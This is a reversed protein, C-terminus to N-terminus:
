PHLLGVRPAPPEADRGLELLPEWPEGRQVAVGVLVTVLRQSLERSRSDPGLQRLNPFVDPPQVAMVRRYEEDIPTGRRAAERSRIEGLAAGLAMDAVSEYADLADEASFGQRTLGGVVTDIQALVREPGVGGSVFQELLAPQGVFADYSYRAWEVLWVSWHQGRDVPFALQAASYETGLRMLDDRGRVHHYLGPVSVGLREAVAKMTIRDLGVEYAAEAIMARDVRAPRGVKARTRAPTAMPAPRRTTAM